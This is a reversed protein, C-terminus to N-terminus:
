LRRAASQSRGRGCRSHSLNGGLGSFVNLRITGLMHDHYWLTTAEQDNPYNYVKTTFFPGTQAWGRTFWAEPYGDSDPLVRAGHLHVVTRTHPEGMDAGHITTDYAYELLHRNPLNNGWRVSIPQGRRTEFTPGPWSGGYGWLTTLPLDPHVRQQFQSMAINYQAVGAATSSPQAVPPIALPRVYKRLSPSGAKITRSVLPLVAFGAGALLGGKVVRRRTTTVRLGTERTSKTM